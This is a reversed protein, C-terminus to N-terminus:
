GPCSRHSPDRVFGLSESVLAAWSLDVPNYLKPRLINLIIFTLVKSHIINRLFNQCFEWIALFLTALAFSFFLCVFDYFASISTFYNHILCVLHLINILLSSYFTELISLPIFLNSVKISSPITFLHFFTPFYLISQFSHFHIFMLYYKFLIFLIIFSFFNIFSHIFFHIFFHIFSCSPIPSYVSCFLSHFSIFSYLFSHLFSHLFLHIFSSTLSHIFSHLFSYMFSYMFQLSRLIIIWTHLIISDCSFSTSFYPFPSLM